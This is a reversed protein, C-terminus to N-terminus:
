PPRGPDAEARPGKLTAVVCVRKWKAQFARGHVEPNVMWPVRQPRDHRASRGASTAFCNTPGAIAPALM